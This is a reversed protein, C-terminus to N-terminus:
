SSRLWTNGYRVPVLLVTPTSQYRGVQDGSLCGFSGSNVSNVSNVSNASDTSTVSTNQMYCPRRTVHTRETMHLYNRLIAHYTNFKNKPKNTSNTTEQIYKNTVNKRTSKKTNRQKYKKCKNTQHM